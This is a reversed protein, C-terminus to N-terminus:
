CPSSGLRTTNVAAYVDTQLYGVYKSLVQEVVKASRIPYYLYLVIKRESDKRSCFVWCRSQGDVQKGDFKLVRLLM